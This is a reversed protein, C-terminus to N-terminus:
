VNIEGNKFFLTNVTKAFLIYGMSDLYLYVDEQEMNKLDFTIAEVLIYNPRYRQWDNSKLVQLDFGEVDITIFDIGVGRPMYQDLVKALPQTFLQQKQMIAYKTSEERAQALKIDFTNLAADDFVYYTLEREEDSIAIELNIDRPRNKKFAVMSGPMADINIGSWDKKYLLYTNSFRQPHHAGVDVYFGTPKNEFLRRLIMDEGEQAYSLHYYNLKLVRRLGHKLRVFFGALIQNTM